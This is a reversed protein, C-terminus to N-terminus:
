FQLRLQPPQPALSRTCVQVPTQLLPIIAGETEVTTGARQARPSMSPAAEVLMAVDGAAYLNEDQHTVGFTLAKPKVVIPVVVQEGEDVKKKDQEDTGEGGVTSEDDDANMALDEVAISRVWFGAAIRLLGALVFHGGVGVAAAWSGSPAEAFLKFLYGWTAPV